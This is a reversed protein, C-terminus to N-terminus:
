MWGLGSGAGGSVRSQGRPSSRGKVKDPRTNGPQRQPGFASQTFIIPQEITPLRCSCWWVSLPSFSCHFSYNYFRFHFSQKRRRTNTNASRRNNKPWTYKCKSRIWCSLTRTETIFSPLSISDLSTQQPGVKTETNKCANYHLKNAHSCCGPLTDLRDEQLTAM